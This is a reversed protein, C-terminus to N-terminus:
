IRNVPLPDPCHELMEQVTMGTIPHTKGAAIEKLPTLVFRREAIYPHPLILEPLQIIKNEYFLLDIDIIRSGWKIGDRERGLEKEVQLITHLLDLPDLETQIELAQNYFDDQDEKGWPATCYISSTKQIVGASDGLKKHALQLNELKDGLNTGLLLYCTKM